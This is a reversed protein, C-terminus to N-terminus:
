LHGVGGQRRQPGVEHEVLRHVADLGDAHHHHHAREGGEREAAALARRLEDLICVQAAWRASRLRAPQTLVDRRPITGRVVPLESSLAPSLPHDGGGVRSGSRPLALPPFGHSSRGDDDDSPPEAVPATTACRGASASTM